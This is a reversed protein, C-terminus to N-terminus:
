RPNRLKHLEIPVVALLIVLLAALLSVFIGLPSVYHQRWYQSIASCIVVVVLIIWNRRFANLLATKLM